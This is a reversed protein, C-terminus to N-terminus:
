SVPEFHNNIRFKDSKHLFITRTTPVRKNTPYIIYGGTMTHRHFQIFELKSIHLDMIRSTQAVGTQILDLFIEIGTLHIGTIFM